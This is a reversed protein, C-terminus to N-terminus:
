FLLMVIESHIVMGVFFFRCFHKQFPKQATKREMKFSELIRYINLSFEKRRDKQLQCDNCVAM